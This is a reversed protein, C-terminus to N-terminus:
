VQERKLKAMLANVQAQMIAIQYAQEQRKHESLLLLRAIDRKPLELIAALPTGPKTKPNM